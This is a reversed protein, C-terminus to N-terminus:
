RVFRVTDNLVPDDDWDYNYDLGDRPLLSDEGVLGHRSEEKRRIGFIPNRSHLGWIPTDDSRSDSQSNGEGDDEGEGGSTIVYMVPRNCQPCCAITKVERFQKWVGGILDTNFYFEKELWTPIVGRWNCLWNTCAYVGESVITNYDTVPNM